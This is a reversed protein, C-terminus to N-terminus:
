VVYQTITQRCYNPNTHIYANHRIISKSILFRGDVCANDSITSEIISSPEKDDCVSQILSNGSIQSKLVSLRGLLIANDSVVSKGQVFVYDSIKSNDLVYSTKDIWANGDQAINNPSSVYGGVTGPRILIGNCISFKQCSVIKYFKDQERIKKFLIRFGYNQVVKLFADRSLSHNGAIKDTEEVKKHCMPCEHTCLSDFVFAKCSGCHRVNGISNEGLIFACTLNEM